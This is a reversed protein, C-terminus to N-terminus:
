SSDPEVNKMHMSIFRHKVHIGLAKCIRNTVEADYTGRGMEIDNVVSPVVHCMKALESQKLNKALRASAVAASLEKSPRKMVEGPERKPPTPRTVVPVSKRLVVPTWDQQM